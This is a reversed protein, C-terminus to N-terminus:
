TSTKKGYYYLEKNMICAAVHTPLIRYLEERDGEFAAERAMTSSIEPIELKATSLDIHPKEKFWDVKPVEGARSIVIFPVEEILEEWRYWKEITNANDVGIVFYFEYDQYEIDSKLANVLSYTDGPLKKDKEYSSVHIDQYREFTCELLQIRTEFSAMHKGYRHKGCPLAWVEDVGSHKLIYRATKLHGITPPDFAGGFIAVKKHKKTTTTM